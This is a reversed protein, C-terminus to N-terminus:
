AHRAVRPGPTPVPVSPLSGDAPLDLDFDQEHDPFVYLRHWENYPYPLRVLVDRGNVFRLGWLSRDTPNYVIDGIRAAHFLMHAKGTRLELGELNRYDNNNTTYFLSETQPDYALSPGHLGSGKIEHLETRHRRQALDVRTRSNAQYRVAPAAAQQWGEVPAARCPASNRSTLDHYQTIPHEHVAQLNKRQFEQELTWRRQSQELPLGYVKQFQDAYRQNRCRAAVLQAPIAPRVLALYDM